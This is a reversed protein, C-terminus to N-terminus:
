HCQSSMSGDCYFRGSYGCDGPWPRQGARPLGCLDQTKQLLVDRSDSAHPAGFCGGSFFQGGRVLIEGGCCDIVSMAM